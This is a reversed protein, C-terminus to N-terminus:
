DHHVTPVAKQRAMLGVLPSSNGDSPRRKLEGMELQEASLRRRVKGDCLDELMM